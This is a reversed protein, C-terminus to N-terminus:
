SVFRTVYVVGPHLFNSISYQMKHSFINLALAYRQVTNDDTKLPVREAKLDADLSGDAAPTAAAMFFLALCFQSHSFLCLAAFLTCFRL